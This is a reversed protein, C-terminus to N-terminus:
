WGALARSSAAAPERGQSLTDLAAQFAQGAKQAQLQTADCPRGKRVRM